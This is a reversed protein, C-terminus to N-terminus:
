QFRPRFDILPKLNMDSYITALVAAEVAQM